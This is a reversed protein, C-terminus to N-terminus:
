RLRSRTGPGAIGNPTLGEREQFAIVAAETAPGFVGDVDVAIDKIALAQQLTTVDEGRMFPKSLRLLRPQSLSTVSPKDVKDSNARLATSNNVMASEEAQEEIPAAVWVEIPAVALDGTSDIIEAVPVASALVAPVLSDSTSDLDTNYVYWTVGVLAALGILSILGGLRRRPASEQEEMDLLSDLPYEEDHASMASPTQLIEDEVAVLAVIADADAPSSVSGPDQAVASRDIPCLTPHTREASTLGDGRRDSDRDATAAWNRITQASPEFERALEKPARGARVLEVMHQRFEPAYPPHARPM